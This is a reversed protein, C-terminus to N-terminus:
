CEGVVWLSICGAQGLGSCVASVSHSYGSLLLLIASMHQTNWRLYIRHCCSSGAAGPGPDVVYVCLWKLAPTGHPVRVARFCPLTVSCVNCACGEEAGEPVSWCHCVGFSPIYASLGCWVKLLVGESGWKWLVHCGAVGLWVVAPSTLFLLFMVLNVNCNIKKRKLKIKQM